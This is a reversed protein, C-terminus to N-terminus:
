RTLAERVPAGHGAITTVRWAAGEPTLKRVAGNWTDAVYINGASDVALSSPGYFRAADGLGDAWTIKTEKEELRAVGAITTVVWNTGEAAVRRITSSGYNMDAVFLTGAHDVAVADLDQFRAADNTGDAYKGGWGGGVIRSIAWGSGAPTLKLLSNCGENALFLNGGSDLALGRPNWVREAIKASANKSPDGVITTAVWNTGM